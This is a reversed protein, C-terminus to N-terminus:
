VYPTTPLTLHTYSVADPYYGGGMMNSGGMMGGQSYKLNWMMNPGYEPFIRGTQKDILMEFAGLNTSKEYYVVYYNNEFEMIEDIAIDPINITDLYNDAIDYAQNIDNSKYYTLYSVGLVGIVILGIGILLNKKQM